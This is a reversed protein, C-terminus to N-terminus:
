SRPVVFPPKPAFGHAAAHHPPPKRPPHPRRVNGTGPYWSLYDDPAVAASYQAEMAARDDEQQRRTLASLERQAAYRQEDAIRAAASRDLMDRAAQLRAVAGPDVDGPHVDLVEGGKCPQDTYVWGPDKGACKYIPAAAVNGATAVLLLAALTGVAVISVNRQHLSARIMKM